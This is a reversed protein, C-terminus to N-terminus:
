ADLRVRLPAFEGAHEIPLYSLVVGAAGKTVKFAVAGKVREGPPLDGSKLSGQEVYLEPGSELGSADKVVFYMPNYSQSVTGTNEILVDAIVYETGPDATQFQSLAPQREVGTVTLAFGPAEVRQKLAAPAVWPTGPTVDTSAPVAAPLTVVLSRAGPAATTVTSRKALASVAFGAALLLALALVSWYMLQTSLTQNKM